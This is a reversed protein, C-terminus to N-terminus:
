YNWGLLNWVSLQWLFLFFAVVAVSYLVRVTSRGQQKAWIRVAYVAAGLTMIGALIPFLLAIGLASPVEVSIKRPLLNPLLISVSMVWLLASLWLANRAGTPIRVLDQDPVRHWRRIGWGVFPSLLTLVVAVAMLVLIGIHLAPM